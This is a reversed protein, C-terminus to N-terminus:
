LESVLDKLKQLEEDTDQRIQRTVAQNERIRIDAEHFASFTQNIGSKIRKKGSVSEEINIQYTESPRIVMARSVEIKELNLRELLPTLDEEELPEDKTLDDKPTSESMVVGLTAKDAM